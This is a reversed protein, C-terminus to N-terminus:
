EAGGVDTGYLWIKYWSDMKDCVQFWENSLTWYSPRMFIWLIFNEIATTALMFVFVWFMIIAPITMLVSRLILKM